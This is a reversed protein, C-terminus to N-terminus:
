GAPQRIRQWAMVLVVAAVCWLLLAGALAKVLPLRASLVYLAGLYVAYPALAWLGFLVTERLDGTTRETGMIYHAILAFMPFLPVLGALVFHRSRSLLTIVVVAAAGLIARVLLPGM